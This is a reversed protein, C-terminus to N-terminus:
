DKTLEQKNDHSWGEFHAAKGYCISLYIFMNNDKVEEVYLSKNEEKNEKKKKSLYIFLNITLIMFYVCIDHEIM